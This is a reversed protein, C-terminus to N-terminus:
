AIHRGSGPRRAASVAYAVAAGVASVVGAVVLLEGLVMALGSGSGMPGWAGWWDMSRLGVTYTVLGVVLSALGLLLYRARRAEPPGAWRQSPSSGHRGAPPSAGKRGRLARRVLWVVEAVGSGVVLATGAAVALVGLLALLVGGGSDDSGGPTDAGSWILGFGLGFSGAGAVVLLAGLVLAKLRRSADHLPYRRRRGSGPGARVPRARDPALPAANRDADM